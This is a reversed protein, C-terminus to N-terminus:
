EAGGQGDSSSGTAGGAGSTHECTLTTLGLVPLDCYGDSGFQEALASTAWPLCRDRPHSCDGDCQCRGMCYGIDGAAYNSFRQQSCAGGAGCRQGLTCPQSCQDKSDQGETVITLCVGIGCAKAANAAGQCEAGLPVPARRKEDCLGTSANCFRGADSCDQDSNCRPGCGADRCQGEVCWGGGECAAGDDACTRPSSPEFLRCAFDSRGHCKSSGIPLGLACGQVCVRRGTASRTADQVDFVPEALSACVASADVAQCDQDADCDLTCMGHPPGGQGAQYDRDGRLCHLGACDADRECSQGLAAAEIEPASPMDSTQTTARGCSAAMSSCLLLFCVSWARALM